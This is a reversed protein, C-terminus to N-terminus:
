EREANAMQMGVEDLEIMEKRNQEAKWLEYRKERLKEIVKRQKAAEALESRAVDVLQQAAVIRRAQDVARRQMALSFRRHSALFGLDLPGTLRNDRVDAVARQVEADMARLEDTLRKVMSLKEALVRQREREAQKRLRFVGDLNFVFRAM